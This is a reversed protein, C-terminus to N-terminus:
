CCTWGKFNLLTAHETGASGGATGRDLVQINAASASCPGSEFSHYLQLTASEGLTPSDVTKGSALLGIQTSDLVSSWIGIEDITGTLPRIQELAPTGTWYNPDTSSSVYFRGIALSVDTAEVNVSTNTTELTGNVYIKATGGSTPGDFTGAIHTWAGANMSSARVTTVDASGAGLVFEWHGTGDSSVSLGYGALDHVTNGNLNSILGQPNSTSSSAKVWCAITFSDSDGFRINSANSGKATGYGGSMHLSYTGKIVTPYGGTVWPGSSSVCPPGPPLEACDSRGYPFKTFPNRERLTGDWNTYPTCKWRLSITNNITQSFVPRTHQGLSRSVTTITYSKNHSM